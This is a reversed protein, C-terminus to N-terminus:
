ERSGAPLAEDHDAGQDRWTIATRCTRHHWQVPDLGVAALFESPRISGGATVRVTWHLRHADVTAELLYSRLDMVKGPGSHGADREIPWTSAELITRVKERVPGVWEAPLEVVYTASEPQMPRHGHVRWAELLSVGHPMQATLQRLAEAPDIPHDLEFTLVDARTAVGVPRPLPLSLRPRPNFGESFRVPLETRALAREFMRMTDHHSIFRVDDQVAFRIAVKYRM